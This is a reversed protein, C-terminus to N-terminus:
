RRRIRWRRAPRRGAAVGASLRPALGTYPPQHLSWGHHDPSSVAQTRDQQSARDLRLRLRLGLHHAFRLRFGRRLRLRLGFRLGFRLRLGLRLGLRRRGGVPTAAHDVQGSRHPRGVQEEHGLARRIGEHHRSQGGHDDRLEVAHRRRLQHEAAAVVVALAHIQTHEAPPGVPPEGAVRLELRGHRRPDAGIHGPGIEIAVAVAIQQAIGHLQQPPSAWAAERLRHAEELHRLPGGVRILAETPGEGGVIEVRVALEIQDDAVLASGRYPQEVSQRVPSPDVPGRAEDCERPRGRDDRHQGERVQQPRRAQDGDAAGACWQRRMGAEVLRGRQGAIQGGPDGLVREEAVGGPAVQEAVHREGHGVGHARGEAVDIAVTHAVHHEHRRDVRDGDELTM